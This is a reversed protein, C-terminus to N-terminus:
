LNKWESQVDHEGASQLIINIPMYGLNRYKGNPEDLHAPVFAGDDYINLRVM